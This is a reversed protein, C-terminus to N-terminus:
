TTGYRAQYARVLQILFLPAQSDLPRLGFPDRAAITELETRQAPPLTAVAALATERETTWADRNCRTREEEEHREIFGTRDDPCLWVIDRWAQPDAIYATVKSRNCVECTGRRITGRRLAMALKARASDAACQAADRGKATERRRRNIQRRNDARWRKVDLLHHERCRWGGPRASKPCGHIGCTRVLPLPPPLEIEDLPDVTAFTRVFARIRRTPLRERECTLEFLGLVYTRHM